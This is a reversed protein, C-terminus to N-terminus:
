ARSCSIARHARMMNHGPRDDGDKRIGSNEFSRVEHQLPVDASKRHNVGAPFQNADYRFTIEDAAALDSSLAFM